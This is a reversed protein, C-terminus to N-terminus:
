KVPEVQAIGSILYERGNHLNKVLYRTRRKELSKYRKKNFLFESGISIEDLYPQSYEDYKRLVKYLDKDSCSSAKPNDIYKELALQVDEPFLPYFKVLMEAFISKWEVGHPQVRRGHEEWTFLHAFEHLTTILFAHKNLNNNITIQHKKRSGYAPRFDGFKTKRPNVIKFDLKFEQIWNEIYPIVEQPLYNALVSM